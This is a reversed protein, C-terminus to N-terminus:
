KRKLKIGRVNRKFFAALGLCCLSFLFLYMFDFIYAYIKIQNTLSVAETLMYFFSMVLIWLIFKNDEKEFNEYYIEKLDFKLFISLILFLASIIGVILFMYKKLVIHVGTINQGGVIAIWLLILCTCTSGQLISYKQFLENQKEKKIHVINKLISDINCDENNFVIELVRKNEIFEDCYNELQILTKNNLKLKENKIDKMKEFDNFLQEFRTYFILPIEIDAIKCLAELTNYDRPSAKDYMWNQITRFDVPYENKELEDCVCHLYDNISKNSLEAKNEIENNFRDSDFLVIKEKYNKENVLENIKM